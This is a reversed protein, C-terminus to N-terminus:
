LENNLIYLYLLHLYIYYTYNISKEIISSLGGGNIEMGLHKESQEGSTISIASNEM